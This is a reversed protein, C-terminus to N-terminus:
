KRGKVYMDKRTFIILPKQQNSILGKAKKRSEGNSSSNNSINSTNGSEDSLLGVNNGSNKSNSKLGPQVSLCLKKNYPQSSQICTTASSNSNTGSCGTSASGSRYVNQCSSISSAVAPPLPTPKSDRSTSSHIYTNLLQEHLKEEYEQHKGQQM